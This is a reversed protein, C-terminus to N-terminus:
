LAIEFVIDYARREGEIFTVLPILSENLALMGGIHLDQMRVGSRQASITFPSSKQYQFIINEIKTGYLRGGKLLDKM